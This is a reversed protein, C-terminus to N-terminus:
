SGCPQINIERAFFFAVLLLVVTVSLSFNRVRSGITYSHAIYSCDGVNYKYIISHESWLRGCLLCDTDSEAVNLLLLM